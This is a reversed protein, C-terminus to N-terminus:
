ISTPRGINTRGQVEMGLNPFVTMRDLLAGRTRGDCNFQLLTTEIDDPVTGDDISRLEAVVGTRM